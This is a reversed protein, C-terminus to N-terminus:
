PGPVAAPVAEAQGSTAQCFALVEGLSTVLTTVGGGENRLAVLTPSGSPAHWLAVVVPVGPLRRQVRRLFYRVAAASSGEELVALCCLRVRGPDLRPDPPGELATSPVGIAGFGEHRLGQAAVEASLDDLRGRGAVCVVAGEARLAPPASGAEATPTEALEDLLTEVQQRVADLREPELVERSWDAEALALGRLAVEDHWAVLSLGGRMAARAQTVLADADGELARQYFSEEPRLPPRDGLMVDLFELRPVHRGLVVLGVTLPTALLLGIPGWMFTWFTAALIVSVPSLGTSRGFILPEFVQGMLPETLLFIAVVWLALGWGPEAALALLLPPLIAVPTGVFPVFRMLGAIIGWLPAGPLGIVWFAAGVLAALGANLALQALFLRSLRYAADDLAGVTRHLDRVGALRVLRDRLDARYLLIFLAFIVVLGATALPSLVPGLFSALVELPSSEAAAQSPQVMESRAGFMGRLGDLAHEAQGLLEAVRMQELKARLNGAFEGLDGALAALQRLVVLALGVLVGVAAVVALLVSPVHGLGIRRLGRALPALVFALLVALALPVLLDRGLYLAAVVIAGVAVPGFGPGGAAAALARLRREAPNSEL